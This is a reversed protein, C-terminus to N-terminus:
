PFARIGSIDNIQNVSMRRQLRRRVTAAKYRSFDHGTNTRLIAFIKNCRNGSRKGNCWVQRRQYGFAQSVSNAEGADTLSLCSTSWGQILPAARCATTSRRNRNRFSSREKSKSLRKEPWSHWRQRDRIIHYLRCGAGKGQCLSRFFFDIPLKLGPPQV